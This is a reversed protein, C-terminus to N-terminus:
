FWIRSWRITTILLLIISLTVSFMIPAIELNPYMIILILFNNNTILGIAIILLLITFTLYMNRLFTNLFYTIVSYLTNMTTLIILTNLIIDINYNFVIMSTTILVTLYINLFLIIKLINLLSYKFRERSSTNIFLNLSYSSKNLSYKTKYHTLLLLYLGHILYLITRSVTPIYVYITFLFVLLSILVMLVYETHKVKIM